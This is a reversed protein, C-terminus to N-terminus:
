ARSRSHAAARGVQVYSGLRYRSGPHVLRAFTAVRGRSWTRRNIQLCAEPSRVQLWRAVQSTPLVAEIVHEISEIPAIGSLYANPTTRTFDQELYRPAVAPNTFREELQVPVANDLHVIISHFVRAGPALGLYMAVPESAAVEELKLVRSGYSHGREAIEEAINRVELMSLLPKRDAVFTGLGQSRVLYGEQVLDLLARRATMRSVEFEAALQNESPVRSAVKWAGSEIRGVVHRKIRAYPAIHPTVSM